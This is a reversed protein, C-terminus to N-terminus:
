GDYLAMIGRHPRDYPDGTCGVWDLWGLCSKGPKGLCDGNTGHVMIHFLLFLVLAGTSRNRPEPVSIPTDMGTMDFEM